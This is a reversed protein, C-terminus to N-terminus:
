KRKRRFSVYRAVEINNDRHDGALTAIAWAAAASVISTAALSFGSIIHLKRMLEASLQPTEPEVGHTAALSAWFGAVAIAIAMLVTSAAWVVLGHAGDRLESEETNPASTRLIRGALYAGAMSAMLQVWLTWLGVIIINKLTITELTAAHSFSLGLANGFPILVVSIALALFTGAIVAGCDVYSPTPTLIHTTTAM